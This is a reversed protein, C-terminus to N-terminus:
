RSSVEGSVCKLSPFRTDLPVLCSGWNVGQSIRVGSPVALTREAWAATAGHVARTIQIYMQCAMMCQQLVAVV